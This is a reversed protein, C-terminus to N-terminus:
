VNTISHGTTVKVYSWLIFLKLTLNVITIKTHQDTTNQTCTYIQHTLADHHQLLYKVLLWFAPVDLVFISENSFQFTQVQQKWYATTTKINDERQYWQCIACIRVMYDNNYLAHKNNEQLDSYSTRQFLPPINQYDPQQTKNKQSILSIMKSDTKTIM